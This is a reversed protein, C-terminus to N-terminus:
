LRSNRWDKAQVRSALRRHPRRGDRCPAYAETKPPKPLHPETRRCLHRTGSQGLCRANPRLWARGDILRRTTEQTQKSCLSDTQCQVDDPPTPPNASAEALGLALCEQCCHQTLAFYCADFRLLRSTVCM